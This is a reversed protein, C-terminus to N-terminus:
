WKGKYQQVMAEGAKSYILHSLSQSSNSVYATVTLLVFKVALKEETDWLEEPIFILVNKEETVNIWM